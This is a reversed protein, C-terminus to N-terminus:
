LIEEKKIVYDDITEVELISDVEWKKGLIEAIERNLCVEPIGEADKWVLYVKM